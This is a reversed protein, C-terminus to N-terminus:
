SRGKILMNQIMLAVADLKSEIVTQNRVYDERRVYQLPLDAKLKLLDREVNRTLDANKTEESVQRDFRELIAKDATERAKEQAAFREETRKDQQAFLLRQVVGCFTVFSVFLTILQWMELQVIM